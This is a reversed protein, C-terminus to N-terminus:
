HAQYYYYYYYNHNKGTIKSPSDGKIIKNKDVSKQMKSMKTFTPSNEAKLQM